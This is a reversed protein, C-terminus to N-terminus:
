YNNNTKRKRKKRKLNCNKIKIAEKKQLIQNVIKNIRNILSFFFLIITNM